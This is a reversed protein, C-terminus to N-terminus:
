RYSEVEKLLQNAESEHQRSGSNIVRELIERAEQLRLIEVYADAMDLLINLELESPRDASIHGMGANTKVSSNKPQFAKPLHRGNAEVIEALIADADPQEEASLRSKRVQIIAGIIGFASIAALNTLFWRLWLPWGATDTELIQPIATVAQQPQGTNKEERASLKRFIERAAEPTVERITAIDPLTLSRGPILRRIDGDDFAEPNSSYLAIMLQHLTFDPYREIIRSAITSLSDSRAVPGYSQVVNETDSGVDAAVLPSIAAHTCASVLMLLLIVRRIRRHSIAANM